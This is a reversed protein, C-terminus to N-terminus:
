RQKLFLGPFAFPIDLNLWEPRISMRKVNFPDIDGCTNIGTLFSFGLKFGINKSVSKTEENFHAYGGVPYAISKIEKNVVSELIEVSKKLQLDLTEANQKSLISHDHSHSGISMGNESLIKIQEWSMLESSQLMSDPPDIELSQSLDFLYKDVEDANTAKLELILKKIISEPDELSFEKDRFVFERISGKEASKKIIFAVIDWWGLKRESLHYTPIFFIAPINLEKLVPYALDFCDRYGDDFTVMSCLGKIKKKNYVVDIMEEESLITTEKKLWIMEDRFRKEDPGYITDDFCTPLNTGKIRHYNFIIIKNQQFMKLPRLMRSKSIIMKLLQRM